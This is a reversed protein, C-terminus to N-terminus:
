LPQSVFRTVSDPFAPTKWRLWWEALALNIAWGLAFAGVFEAWFEADSHIGFSLLLIPFVIRQTMVAGTTAIARIMWIRHLNFDRRRAARFGLLLCSAVGTFYIVIYIRESLPHQPAVSFPISAGTVAALLGSGVALRGIYRHFLPQSRRIFSVLQLMAFVAFLLASAFHVVTWTPYPQDSPGTEKGEHLLEIAKISIRVGYAYLLVLASIAVIQAVKVAAAGTKPPM